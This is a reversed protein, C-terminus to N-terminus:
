SAEIVPLNITFTSGVDEQSVFTIEGQHQLVCYKAIALGLGTGPIMDVNRARHFLKFLHPQDDQPVGIGEDQVQFIVNHQKWILTFQIPEGGPSYKVANSLLNVLALHLLEGDLYANRPNGEILFVIQRNMAQSLSDILVQCFTELNIWTPQFQLQGMEAKNLTLVDELLQTMDNVASYIRQFYESKKEETAVHGYQELLKASTRIVTLPTRLEHSIMAVFRSKLESLEQEQQLIHIMKQEVM